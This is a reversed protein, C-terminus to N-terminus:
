SPRQAGHRVRLIHIEGARIEYRILYPYIVTLERLGEGILRGREPFSALGDGATLLEDVFSV